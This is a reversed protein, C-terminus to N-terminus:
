LITIKGTHADMKIRDGNKIIQTAGRVGVITPIGLERGIIATHSLLSGKESILGLSRSMIYVWAPDTNKTVLIFDKLESTLAEVPNDLVLAFGETSGPSVGQGIIENLRQSQHMVPLEESEVWQIIEPYNKPQNQWSRRGEMLKFIDEKTLKGLQYAKWEYHTISFFDLISFRNWEPNEQILQEALKLILSRIVHYFKGRWLRTAERTAISERTFKLILAEFKNFKIEVSNAHHETNLGPNQKAWKILSVLLAPNNRLPLSELKLEEFSRDGYDALFNKVKKVENSFGNTSLEAFAYEYPTLGLSWQFQDLANIFNESLDKVLENFMVLPKLSDVGDTTQLVDIVSEESLDRKKIARTVLSLGLMVFVDNVVTLGFSLPMNILRYIQSMTQRSNTLERQEKQLTTRLEELSDMFESFVKKRNLALKSIAVLSSITEVMSAKTDHYPVIVQDLKGGIMKHWKEINKDGGPLVRLAAYYHELNYYLHNDVSSILKHYHPKLIKLRESTAGMIFASEMFVNEYAKKVFEATFPSVAGPYSESLNTDVFVQLPEFSRTIPRIQFIYLIRDKFGWEIDCPIKINKELALCEELLIKIELSNLVEQHTQQVKHVLEKQRTFLYHDIDVHGSVVGEGMGFAADVAIASTPAVPSRSFLVGSKEVNIQEQVVVAMLIRVQLNKRAIYESVRNSHVSEFIQILSSQWNEKKVNLLTDFLGAFSSDQHDESIMSSRLAIVPHVNLFSEVQDSVEPPIKKHNQYYSFSETTIVFFPAVRAGWKMLKQLHLGKGGVLELSSIDSSGAWYTM